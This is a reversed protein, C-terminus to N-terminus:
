VSRTWAVSLRTAVVAASVAARGTLLGTLADREGRRADDIRKGPPLM